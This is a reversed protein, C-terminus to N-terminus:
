RTPSSTRGDTGKRNTRRHVFIATIAAAWIGAFAWLWPEIGTVVLSQPQGPNPPPTGEATDVASGNVLVQGTSDSSTTVAPVGYSLTFGGFVVPKTADTQTLTLRVKLFRSDSPLLFDLNVPLGNADAGGSPSITQEPSFDSFAVGDLSGAVAITMSNGAVIPTPLTPIIRYLTQIDRQGVTFVATGHSANTNLEIGRKTLQTNSDGADVGKALDLPDTVSLTKTQLTATDGFITLRGTRSAWVLVASGLILVTVLMSLYLRKRRM